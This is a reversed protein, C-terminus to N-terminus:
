ASPKVATVELSTLFDAATTGAPLAAAIERYLPDEFSAVAAVYSPKSTLTVEALGAAEALRRHEDVPVAGSVCGVLAEVKALVAEPLPRLLALDSVAVRGGPKLVRAIERWVQDKAPSLNIVCNSIVVDASADALPLHEIEGLRFEVNDLGSRQRFARANDRARAVMEATMDVGIVHGGPGVKPAALFADFGGGSGLDVVVEGPALAALATPNGCSLGLNAGDPLAALEEAAYGIAAAFDDPAGGCCQEAYPAEPAVACCATVQGSGIRGYAERVQRRVTEADFPAAAPAATPEPTTM